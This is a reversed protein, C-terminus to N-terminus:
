QQLIQATDCKEIFHEHTGQMLQLIDLQGVTYINKPKEVLCVIRGLFKKSLSATGITLNKKKKRFTSTVRASLQAIKAITM